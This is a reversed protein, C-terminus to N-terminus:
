SLRSAGLGQNKHTLDWAHMSADNYLEFRM